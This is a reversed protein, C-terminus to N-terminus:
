LIPCCAQSPTLVNKSGVQLILLKQGIKPPDFIKWVDRQAVQQDHYQHALQPDVFIPGRQHSVFIQVWRPPLGFINICRVSSSELGRGWGLILSYGRVELCMIVSYTNSFYPNLFVRFQFLHFKMKILSIHWTIAIKYFIFYRSYVVLISKTVVRMLLHPIKYFFFVCVDSQTPYQVGVM